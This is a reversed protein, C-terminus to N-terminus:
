VGQLDAEPPGRVEGLPWLKLFRDESRTQHNSKFRIRIVRNTPAQFERGAPLLLPCLKFM